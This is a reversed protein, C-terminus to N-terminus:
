GTRRRTKWMAIALLPVAVLCVVGFWVDGGGEMVARVGVAAGVVLLFSATWFTRNM